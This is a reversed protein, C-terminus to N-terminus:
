EEDEEEEENEEACERLFDAWKDNLVDIASQSIELGSLISIADPNEMLSTLEEETDFYIVVGSISSTVADRGNGISIWHGDSCHCGELGCGGNESKSIGSHTEVAGGDKVKGNPAVNEIKFTRTRM